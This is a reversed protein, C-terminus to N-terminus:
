KLNRVENREKIIESCNNVCDECIFINDKRIILDKDSSESVNNIFTCNNYKIECFDCKVKWEYWVMENKLFEIFEEESIEYRIFKDVGESQKNTMMHCFVCGFARKGCETCQSISYGIHDIKREYISFRVITEMNSHSKEGGNKYHKCKPKSKLFNFM